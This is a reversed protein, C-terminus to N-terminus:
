GGKKMGMGMADEVEHMAREVKQKHGFTTFAFSSGNKQLNSQLTGTLWLATIGVVSCVALVTLIANVATNALSKMTYRLTSIHKKLVEKNRDFYTQPNNDKIGATLTEVIGDLAKDTASPKESKSKAELLSNIAQTAREQRTKADAFFIPYIKEKKSQNLRLEELQGMLTELSADKKGSELKTSALANELDAIQKKLAAREEDAMPVVVDAAKSATKKQQIRLQEITENQSRITAEREEITKALKTLQQNTSELEKTMRTANLRLQQVEEVSAGVAATDDELKKATKAESLERKLTEIEIRLQALLEFQEQMLRQHQEVPINDNATAPKRAEELATHHQAKLSEIDEQSKIITSELLLRLKTIEAQLAEDGDLIASEAVPPKSEQLDQIQKKLRENEEALSQNTATLEANSPKKQKGDGKGFM